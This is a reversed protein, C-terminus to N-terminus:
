SVRYGYETSWDGNVLDSTTQCTSEVMTGIPYEGIVPCNPDTSACLRYRLSDTTTECSYGRVLPNPPGSAVEVILSLVFSDLDVSGKRPVAHIQINQDVQTMWKSERRM